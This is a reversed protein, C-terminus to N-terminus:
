IVTNNPDVHWVYTVDAALSHLTSVTVADGAPVTVDLGTQSFTSGAIQTGLTTTGLVTTGNRSIVTAAANTGATTIVGYIAKLKATTAPRWRGSLTGTAAPMFQERMVTHNPHDYSRTVAM